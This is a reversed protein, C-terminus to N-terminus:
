IMSYSDYIRVYMDMLTVLVAKPNFAADKKDVDTHHLTCVSIYIYSLNM